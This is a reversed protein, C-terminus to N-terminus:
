RKSLLKARGIAKLDTGVSSDLDAVGSLAADIERELHRARDL